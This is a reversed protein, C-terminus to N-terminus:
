RPGEAGSVATTGPTSAEAPAPAATEAPATSAPAPEETTQSAAIEELLKEFEAERTKRAAISQQAEVVAEPTALETGYEPLPDLPPTTTDNRPFSLREGDKLGGGHLGPYIQLFPEGLMGAAAIKAESGPGFLPMLTGILDRYILVELKVGTAIQSEIALEKQLAKLREMQEPRGALESLDARGIESIRKVDVVYFSVHDIKGIPRRFAAVMNGETLHEEVSTGELYISVSLKEGRLVGQVKDVYLSGAMVVLVVTLVFLGDKVKTPFISKQM